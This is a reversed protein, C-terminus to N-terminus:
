VRFNCVSLYVPQNSLLPPPNSSPLPKKENTIVVNFALNFCTNIVPTNKIKLQSTPPHNDKVKAFFTKTQCCGSTIKKNRCHNTKQQSFFSTQKLKGCCYFSNWAIGSTSVLYFLCCCIVAIKKMQFSYDPV